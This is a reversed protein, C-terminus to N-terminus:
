APSSQNLRRIKEILREPNQICIVCPQYESSEDVILLVTGLSFFRSFGSRLIEFDKITSLELEEVHTSLVGSYSILRTSTLEYRMTRTSLWYWTCVVLPILGIRLDVPMLLAAFLAGLFYQSTNLLPSTRSSWIIREQQM